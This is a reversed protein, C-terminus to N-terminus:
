RKHYGLSKIDVVRSGRFSIILQKEQMKTHNPQLTYIYILKDPAFTNDRVPAGLLALVNQRSMGVKVRAVQASTLVAGQQITPRYALSCGGLSIACGCVLLLTIIKNM